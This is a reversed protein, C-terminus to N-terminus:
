KTLTADKSQVHFNIHQKYVVELVSKWLLTHNRHNVSVFVLL